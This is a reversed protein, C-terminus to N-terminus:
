AFYHNILKDAKLSQYTKEDNELLAFCIDYYLEGEITDLANWSHSMKEGNILAYGTVMRSRIGLGDLIYKFGLSIGSCVGEGKLLCEINFYYEPINKNDNQIEDIRYEMESVLYSFIEKVYYTNRDKIEELKSNNILKDIISERFVCLDKLKVNITDESKDFYFVYLISDKVYSRNLDIFVSMEPNDFVTALLLKWLDGDRINPVDIKTSFCLLKQVVSWINKQGEYSLADYYYGKKFKLRLM